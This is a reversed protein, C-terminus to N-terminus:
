NVIYLVDESIREFKSFRGKSKFNQQFSNFDIEIHNCMNFFEEHYGPSCKTGDEWVPIFKFPGLKHLEHMCWYFYKHEPIYEFRYIYESIYKCGYIDDSFPLDDYLMEYKEVDKNFPRMGPSCLYYTYGKKSDKVYRTVNELPYRMLISQAIVKLPIEEKTIFHYFRSM